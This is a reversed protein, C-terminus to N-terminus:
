KKPRVLSVPVDYVVDGGCPKPFPLREYMKTFATILVPKAPELKVAGVETRGNARVTLPVTGLVDGEIPEVSSVAATLTGMRRSRDALLATIVEDPYGLQGEACTYEPVPAASGCLTEYRRELQATEAAHSAQFRPVRLQQVRRLRECDGLVAAAVWLRRLAVIDSLPPAEDILQAAESPRDPTSSLARSSWDLESEAPKEEPAPTSAVAPGPETGLQLALAHEEELQRERASADLGPALGYVEERVLHVEGPSLERLEAPRPPKPLALSQGAMLGGSMDDTAAPLERRTFSPFVRNFAAEGDEGARLAVLVQKFRASEEHMLYRVIGWSYAYNRSDHEPEVGRGWLWLEEPRMGRHYLMGYQYGILGTGVRVHQVSEFVTGELFSALGEQLWRSPKPMARSVVIHALEHTASFWERSKGRGEVLVVPQKGFRDVPPALHGLMALDGPHVLILSIPETLPPGELVTQMATLLQELYTLQTQLEERPLNSRVVLRSSRAEHWVPGGHVVCEVRAATCGSVAVVVSVLAVGRM